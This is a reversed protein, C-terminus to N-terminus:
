GTIFELVPGIEIVDRVSPPKMEGDIQSPTPKDYDIILKPVTRDVTKLLPLGAWLQGLSAIFGWFSLQSSRFMFCEPQSMADPMAKCGFGVQDVSAVMMVNHNHYRCVSEAEDLDSFVVRAGVPEMVNFRRKRVKMSVLLEALLLRLVVKIAQWAGQKKVDASYYLQMFNVVMASGYMFGYEVTPEEDLSAYRTIRMPHAHAIDFPANSDLKRRVTRAFEKPSRSLRAIKLATAVLNMTGTPILLIKPMQKDPNQEHRKMIETLTTHLTGDGGAIAVIDPKADDIEQAAVELEQLDKTSHIKGPNRPASLIARVAFSMGERPTGLGSQENIVGDVKPRRRFRIAM